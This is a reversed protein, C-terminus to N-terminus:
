TSYRYLMVVSRSEARYNYGHLPEAKAWELIDQPSDLATDISRRWARRRQNRALLDKAVTVVQETRLRIKESTRQATRVLRRPNRQQVADISLTRITNIAPQTMEEDTM